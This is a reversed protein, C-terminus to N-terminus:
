KKLWGLSLVLGILNVTLWGFAAGILGQSEVLTPLLALLLFFCLFNVQFVRRIKEQVIWNVYGINYFANLTTGVLLVSLVPFISGVLASSGLWAHLLWKGASLFVLGGTAVVLAIVGLLKIYLARLADHDEKLQMARPLVAQFLPYILQLAGMGITSAITYYGFQEISVMRSLVMKDMQTTLAGLWVAGSMGAVSGLVPYLESARWAAQDRALGVTKWALYGRVLTELLAILAQWILYAHLTPWILVIVVGGGHRVVASCSVLVNLAVQAQAGVLVSRYVSGPFQCAFIVAAGYVAHRGLEVPLGDLKLWHSSIADALLVTMLGAAMAFAWYIREFGFLLASSRLRGAQSNNARIAFERVLAQSMGADVLGLLAQLMVIFAILGFQRPGLALLYFPLALLPAVAGVGTGLYNALINQKLPMALLQGSPLATQILDPRLM